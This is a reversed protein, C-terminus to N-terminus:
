GREPHGLGAENSARLAQDWTDLTSADAFLFDTTLRSEGVHGSPSLCGRREIARRKGGTCPLSVTPRGRTPYFPLEYATMVHAAADGPRSFPLSGV